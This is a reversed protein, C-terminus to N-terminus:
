FLADVGEPPVLQEDLRKSWGMSVMPNLDRPRGHCLRNIASPLTAFIIRLAGDGIEVQRQVKTNWKKATEKRVRKCRVRVSIGRNM